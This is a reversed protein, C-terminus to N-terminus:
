NHLLDNMEKLWQLENINKFPITDLFNHEFDSFTSSFRNMSKLKKLYYPNSYLMHKCNRSTKRRLKKVLNLKDLAKTEAISGKKTSENYFKVANAEEILVKKFYNLYNHVYNEIYPENLLVLWGKRKLEKNKLRIWKLLEDKTLNKKLIEVLVPFKNLEEKDVSAFKKLEKEALRLQLKKEKIFMIKNEAEKPSLLKFDFIWELGQLPESIFEDTQLEKYFGPFHLKILKLEELGAYLIKKLKFQAKKLKTKEINIDKRIDRDFSAKYLKTLRIQEKKIETISLSFEELEQILLKM